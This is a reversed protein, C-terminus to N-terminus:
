GIQSSTAATLEILPDKNMSTKGNTSFHFVLHGQSIEWILNSNSLIINSMDIVEAIEFVVM